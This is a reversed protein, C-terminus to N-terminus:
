KQRRRLLQRLSALHAFLVAPVVFAPLLNYPDRLVAYNPQDFGIQQFSSPLSLVANAVIFFLLGLSVLNWGILAGRGMKGKQIGWYAVIPATIGALIDYNRGAFTMLEPVSQELFLKYLCLEVLIRISHLYTLSALPLSDLFARGKRTAFLLVILALPPGVMLLFPPPVNQITDLYFDQHALITQFLLWLLIAAAAVSAKRRGLSSQSLASYLLALTLFVTLAFTLQTILPIINEM